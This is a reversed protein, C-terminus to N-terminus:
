CSSVVSVMRKGKSIHQWVSSMELVANSVSHLYFWEQHFHRIDMFVGMVPLSRHGRRIGGPWLGHFYGILTLFVPKTKAKSNEDQKSAVRELKENGFGM